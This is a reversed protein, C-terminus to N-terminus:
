VSRSDLPANLHCGIVMSSGHREALNATFPDVMYPMHPEAPALGVLVRLVTTEIEFLVTALTRIGIETCASFTARWASFEFFDPGDLYL